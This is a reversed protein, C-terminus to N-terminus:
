SPKTQTWKEGGFFIGSFVFFNPTKLNGAQFRIGPDLCTGGRNSTSGPSFLEKNEVGWNGGPAPISPHSQNGNKGPRSFLSMQPWSLEADSRSLDSDLCPPLVFPSNNRNLGQLTLPFFYGWYITYFFFLKFFSPTHVSFFFFFFCQFILIIVTSSSFLLVSGM